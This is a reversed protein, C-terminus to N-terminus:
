SLPKMQMYPVKFGVLHVYRVKQTVRDLMKIAELKGLM